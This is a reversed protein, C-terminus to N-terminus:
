LVSAANCWDLQRLMNEQLVSAALVAVKEVMGQTATVRQVRPVVRQLIRITRVRLVIVIPVEQKTHAARVNCVSDRHQKQVAQLAYVTALALAAQLRLQIISVYVVLMM